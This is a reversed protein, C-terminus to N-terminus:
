APSWEHVIAVLADQGWNGMACNLAFLVVRTNDRTYGKSSDKRDLSPIRPGGVEMVFPLGSVACRGPALMAVVDAVTIEFAIRKKEARTKAHRWLKMEPHVRRYRSQYERDTQRVIESRRRKGKLARPRRTRGNERVRRAERCAACPGCNPEGRMKRRYARSFGNYTGCSPVPRATVQRAGLEVYDFRGDASRQRMEGDTM